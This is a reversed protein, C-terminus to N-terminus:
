ELWHIFATKDNKNYGLKEYFRLTAEQKSGTMLMIKYCNNQIAIEKACNLIDTAYGKNRYNEDTIVNEILAYPRQNHTLNKIIIIVCSAVIKDKLCGVIIRHQPNSLIDKWLNVISEDIEPFANDHLQTYLSLLGMLDSKEAERILVTPM